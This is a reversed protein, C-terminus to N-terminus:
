SLSKELFRGAIGTSSLLTPLTNVHHPSTRTDPSLSVRAQSRLRETAMDLLANRYRGYMVPLELLGSGWTGSSIAHAWVKRTEGDKDSHCDFLGYIELRVTLTVRLVQELIEMKSHKGTHPCNKNLSLPLHPHQAPKLMASLHVPM